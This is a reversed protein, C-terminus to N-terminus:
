SPRSAFLYEGDLGGTLWRALINGKVFIQANGPGDSLDERYTYYNSADATQTVDPLDSWIGNLLQSRGVVFPNNLPGGIGQQSWPTHEVVRL